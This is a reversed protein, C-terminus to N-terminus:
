SYFENYKELKIYNTKMENLVARENPKPECYIFLINSSLM